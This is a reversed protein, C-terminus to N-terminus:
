TIDHGSILRSFLRSSPVNDEDDNNRDDDSDGDDDDRDDDEDEDHSTVYLLPTYLITISM